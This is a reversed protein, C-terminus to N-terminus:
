FSIYKILDVWYNLDNLTHFETWHSFATKLTVENELHHELTAATDGFCTVHLFSQKGKSM